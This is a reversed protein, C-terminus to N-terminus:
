FSFVGMALIADGFFFVLLFALILFPGFAIKAGKKGSLVIPVSILSGMLNALFLVFFALWFKGLALALAICLIYDGGGVWQERSLKYLFFYVGPLIALAGSYDLLVLGTLQSESVLAGIRLAVLIVACIVTYALLVNPLRRWKADYVFLGMLGVILALFAVLQSVGFFTWDKWVLGVALFLGGMLIESLFEAVGIKKGCSRCKGRLILWSLVPVNDYWKLREGCNMCHSWKSKDGTKIRWVQCMMFSGMGAGLVFWLLAMIIM